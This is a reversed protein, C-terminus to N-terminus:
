TLLAGGNSTAIMVTDKRAPHAHHAKRPRPKMLLRGVKHFGARLCHLIPRLLRAGTYARMERKREKLKPPRYVGSPSVREGVVDHFYSIRGHPNWSSEAAAKWASDRTM